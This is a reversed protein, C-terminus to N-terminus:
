ENLLYKSLTRMSRVTLRAGGFLPAAQSLSQGMRDRRSTEGRQSVYGPPWEPSESSEHAKINEAKLTPKRKGTIVKQKTQPFPSLMQDWSRPRLSHPPGPPIRVAQAPGQFLACLARLILPPSM